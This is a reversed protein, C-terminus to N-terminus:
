WWNDHNTKGEKQFIQELIAITTDMVLFSYPKATWKKYLNMFDEFNIVSLLNLAIQQLEWKNPIEIIFYYTSNLRINKPVAFYYQTIFVLSINLKVSRILLVTVTENLKKNSPLDVIMDDFTILKKCKKNLNYEEITKYFDDMDNWYQITTKSDNFYKLDRNERKNVLM